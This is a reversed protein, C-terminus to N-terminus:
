PADNRRATSSPSISGFRTTWIPMRPLRLSATPPRPPAFPDDAAAGGIEGEIDVREIRDIRWPRSRRFGAAERCKFGLTQDAIEPAEIEDASIEDLDRRGEVGAADGAHRGGGDQELKEAHKRLGAGM